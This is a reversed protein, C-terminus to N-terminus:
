LVDLWKGIEDDILSELYIRTTSIDKHQLLEPIEELSTGGKRVINACSHRSVYSSMNLGEVGLQTTIKKLASNM